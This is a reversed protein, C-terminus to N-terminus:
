VSAYGLVKEKLNPGGSRGLMLPGAGTHLATHTAIVKYLSLVEESPEGRVYQVRVFPRTLQAVRALQKMRRNRKQQSPVARVGQRARM